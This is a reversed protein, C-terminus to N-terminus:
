LVVVVDIGLVNKISNVVVDVWDWYGVDVNYVIVYWGSWLLIM